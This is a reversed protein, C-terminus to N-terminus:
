ETLPYAYNISREEPTKLRLIAPSGKLNRNILEKYNRCFYSVASLTDHTSEGYILLAVRRCNSNADTPLDLRLILAEEEKVTTGDEYFVEKAYRELFWKARANGLNGGICIELEFNDEIMFESDIRLKAKVGFEELTTSLM